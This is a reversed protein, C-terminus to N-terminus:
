CVFLFHSHHSLMPNPSLCAFFSYTHLFVFCFRVRYPHYYFCRFEGEWYEVSVTDELFHLIFPTWAPQSFSENRGYIIKETGTDNLTWVEVTGSLICVSSTTALLYGGRMVGQKSSLMNVRKGGVAFFFFFLTIYIDFLSIVFIVM